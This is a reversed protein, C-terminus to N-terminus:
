EDRPVAGASVDGFFPRGTGLVVPVLDVVIEDLLGLALCQGAIRGATM